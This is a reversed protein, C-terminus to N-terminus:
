KWWSRPRAEGAMAPNQSDVPLVIKFTTGQGVVSNVEIQGGHREVINQSIALGLGSGGSEKTTYFPEFIHPLHEDPIGIGDDRIVLEIAVGRQGATSIWLNGGQPMADIANIVMALVVQEIQAPDCHAMPLDAALDLNLQIGAMDMKHQVLRVCRDIVQNLDCWALNMPSVRSFSLLNKVLEGCRKSESAVLDLSGKMEEQKPSSAANKDIWRKVLKSYTLIGSLPNNIEHAVVAAMKGITAMKEVHLMRQHAQKLERTKEEVREELTHAWATIEAQAVQM